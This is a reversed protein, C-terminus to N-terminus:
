RLETSPVDCDMVMYTNAVVTGTSEDFVTAETVKGETLLWTPLPVVAMCM